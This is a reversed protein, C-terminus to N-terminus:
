SCKVEIAYNVGCLRISVIGNGKLSGCTVIVEDSQSPIYSCDQAFGFNSYSLLFAGILYICGCVMGALLFNCFIKLAEM